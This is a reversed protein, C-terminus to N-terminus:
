QDTTEKLIIELDNFRNQVGYFLTFTELKKERWSKMM